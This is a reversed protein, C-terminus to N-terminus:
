EAAKRLVIFWSPLKNLGYHSYVHRTGHVIKEPILRHGHALAIEELARIIREADKSAADGTTIFELNASDKALAFPRAPLCGEMVILGGPSVLREAATFTARQNTDYDIFYSLYVLDFFNSPTDLTELRGLHGPFGEKTILDVSAPSVDLGYLDEKRFGLDQSCFRLFENSGAGVDLIRPHEPLAGVIAAFGERTLIASLYAYHPTTGKYEIDYSDRISIDSASATLRINKIRKAIMGNSSHADAAHKKLASLKDNYAQRLGPIEGLRTIPPLGKPQSRFISFM